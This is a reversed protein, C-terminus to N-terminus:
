DGQVYRNRLQKLVEMSASIFIGECRACLMDGAWMEATLFNKRGEVKEVWGELRLDTDIPTPKIYRVQLTGTSSASTPGM